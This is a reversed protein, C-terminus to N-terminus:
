ADDPGVEDADRQRDLGQQTSVRGVTGAAEAASSMRDAVEDLEEDFLGAYVDLTMAAVSWGTTHGRDLPLTALAAFVITLHAEISERTHHYIPRAALDSKSMRFSKEINLLRSYAGIVQDPDPNPLNTVYGKIGTLAPNKADLARNVTKTAGTLRVYRNRKIATKGAVANEAKAVQQDIGWPAAPGTPATSSSSRTTGGGTRRPRSALAPHLGARRPRSTQTSPAGNPSSTPSTPFAPMSSSRCGPRELASMRQTRVDDNTM